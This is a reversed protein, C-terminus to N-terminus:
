NLDSCICSLFRLRLIVATIIIQYQRPLFDVNPAWYCLLDHLMRHLVSSTTMTVIFLTNFIKNAVAAVFSPLRM